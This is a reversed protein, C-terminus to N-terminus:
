VPRNLAGLVQGVFTRNEEPINRVAEVMIIEGHLVTQRMFNHERAALPVNAFDEDRIILYCNSAYFTKVGVYQYLEEDVNARVFIHVNVLRRELLTTASNRARVNLFRHPTTYDGYATDGFGRRCLLGLMDPLCPLSNACRAPVRAPPAQM